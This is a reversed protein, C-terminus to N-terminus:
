AEVLAAFDMLSLPEDAADRDYVEKRLISVDDPCRFGLRVKGHKVELVVVEIDDAIRVSEGNKRTLVLM